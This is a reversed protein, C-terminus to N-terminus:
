REMDPPPVDDPLHDLIRLTGLSQVQFVSTPRVSANVQKGLQAPLNYLDVLDAEVAYVWARYYTGQPLNLQNFQVSTQNTTWGRV